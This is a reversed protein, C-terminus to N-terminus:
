GGCALECVIECVMACCSLHAGCCSRSRQPSRSRGDAGEFAAAAFLATGPANLATGPACLATGPANLAVAGAM